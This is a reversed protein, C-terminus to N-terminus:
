DDAQGILRLYKQGEVSAYWAEQEARRRDDLARREAALVDCWARDEDHGTYDAPDVCVRFETALGTITGDNGVIQLGRRQHGDPSNQWVTRYDSIEEVQHYRLGDHYVCRM